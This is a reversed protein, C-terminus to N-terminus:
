DAVPQRGAEGRAHYRTTLWWAAMPTGIIVPLLVVLQLLVSFALADARGVDLVAMAVVALWQFTGIQGPSSPIAAGLGMVGCLFLAGGATIGLGLAAAILWAGATWSVWTAFSWATVRVVQAPHDMTAMGRVLATAQRRLWGADDPMDLWERARVSRHAAWWATILVVLLVIAIIGGVVALATLWDPRAVFPLCVLVIVVLTIVDFARDVGVSALSRAVQMRTIRSFWVGRVIDGPRGPVVNSVGLGFWSLAVYTRRPLRAGDGILARWRLGQFLIIALLFPIALVVLWPNAGALADWVEDFSVGRIALWLFLASLPLGVALGVVVTRTSIAGRPIAGDDVPDTTM